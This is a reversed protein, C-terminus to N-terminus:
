QGEPYAEASFVIANDTGATSGLMINGTNASVRWVPRVGHLGEEAVVHRGRVSPYANNTGFTAKLGQSAGATEGVYLNASVPRDIEFDFICYQSANSNWCCCDFQALIIDGVYCYVYVFPLNTSDVPTLTTSTTTINLAGTIMASQRRLYDRTTPGHLWPMDRQHDRATTGEQGRAVTATVAAATHATIYAIEPAGFLGDPDLVIALHNTSDVVPAAALGGSTLTTTAAALPNDEVLGGLFGARLRKENAM